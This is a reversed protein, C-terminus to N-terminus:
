VRVDDGGTVAVPCGDLLTTAVASVRRTHGTMPQRGVQRGTVPDRVAVAGSYHGTVALTRGDVVLTAIATTQGLCGNPTPRCRPDLRSGSSWEVSWRGAPEGEVVVAAIRASLEREGYRAADLALLQRRVGAGAARHLEASVRYVAAGVRAAPSSAVDLLAIVREPDATVLFEPDALWEDVTTTETATPTTASTSSLM